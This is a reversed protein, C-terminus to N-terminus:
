AKVGEEADKFVHRKGLHEPSGTLIQSIVITSPLDLYELRANRLVSSTQPLSFIGHAFVILVPSDGLLHALVESPVALRKLLTIANRDPIPIDHRDCKVGIFRNGGQSLQLWIRTASQDNM